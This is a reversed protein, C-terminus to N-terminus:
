HLWQSKELRLSQVYTEFHEIYDEIDEANGMPSMKPTDRRLADLQREEEEKVQESCRQEQHIHEVKAKQQRSEGEETIHQSHATTFTEFMVMMKEHLQLMQQRQSEKHSHRQQVSRLKEKEWKLIRHDLHTMYALLQTQDVSTPDGANTGEQEIRFSEDEKESDTDDHSKKKWSKSM